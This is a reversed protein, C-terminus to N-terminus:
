YSADDEFSWLSVPAENDPYSGDSYSLSYSPLQQELPYSASVLKLLCDLSQSEKSNDLPPLIPKSMPSETESQDYFSISQCSSTNEETCPMPLHFSDSSKVCGARKPRSPFLPQLNFDALRHDELELKLGHDAISSSFDNESKVYFDTKSMSGSAHFPASLTHLPQCAGSRMTACVSSGTSSSNMAACTSDLTSCSRLASEACNSFVPLHQFHDDQIIPRYDKVDPVKPLEVHGNDFNSPSFQDNPLLKGFEWDRSSSSKLSWLCGDASGAEKMNKSSIKADTCASNHTKKSSSSSNNFSLNECAHLHPAKTNSVSNFLLDKKNPANMSLLKSNKTKLKFPHKKIQPLEDAFNLKAKKGRIKRAAIDYARAADEATDFTGLWVRVGKRPDRIEAAWKGWPRRRIGRYLHKRKNGLTKDSSEETPTKPPEPGLSRIGQQRFVLNSSESAPLFVNQLAKDHALPVKEAPVDEILVDAAVADHVLEPDFCTSLSDFSSDEWQSQDCFPLDYLLDAFKSWEFNHAAALQQGPSIFNSIISGGCM